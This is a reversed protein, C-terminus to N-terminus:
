IFLMLDNFFCIQCSNSIMNKYFFNSSRLKKFIIKWLHQKQLFVVLIVSNFIQKSFQRLMALGFFKFELVFLRGFYLFGFLHGFQSSCNRLYVLNEVFFFYVGLRIYMINVVSELSLEVLSRSFKIFFYLFILGTVFIVLDVSAIGRFFVSSIGFCSLGVIFLIIIKNGWKMKMKM